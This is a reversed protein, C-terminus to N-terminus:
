SFVHGLRPAAIELQTMKELESLRNWAPLSWIATTLSYSKGERELSYMDKCDRRSYLHDCRQGGVEAQSEDMMAASTMM